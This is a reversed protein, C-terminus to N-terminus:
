QEDKLKIYPHDRDSAFKTRLENTNKVGRVTERGKDNANQLTRLDLHQQSFFCFTFSSDSQLVSLRM